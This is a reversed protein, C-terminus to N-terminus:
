GADGRGPRGASAARLARREQETRGGWIGFAAGHAQAWDLCPQRVPCPSRFSKAWAVARRAPGSVGEPFFWEPDAGRCAARSRLDQHGGADTM